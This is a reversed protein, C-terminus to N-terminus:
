NLGFHSTESAQNHTIIYTNCKPTLGLLTTSGLEPNEKECVGKVLTGRKM